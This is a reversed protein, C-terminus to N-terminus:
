NRIVNTNRFRMRKDFVLFIAAKRAAKFFFKDQPVTHPRWGDSRGTSPVIELYLMKLELIIINKSLFVCPSECCISEVETM